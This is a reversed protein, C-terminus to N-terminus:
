AARESDAPLTDHLHAPVDDRNHRLAGDTLREIQLQRQWPIRDAKIWEAVSPQTIGLQRAAASQGGFHEIVDSPKMRVIM